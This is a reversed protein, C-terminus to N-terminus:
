GTQIIQQTKKIEEKIIDLNGVKEKLFTLNLTAEFLASKTSRVTHKPTEINM